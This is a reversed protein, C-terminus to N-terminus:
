RSESMHQPNEPAGSNQDYALLRQPMAISGRAPTEYDAEAVCEQM